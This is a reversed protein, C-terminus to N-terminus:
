RQSNVSMGLSRVPNSAWMLSGPCRLSPVQVLGSSGCMTTAFRPQVATPADASRNDPVAGTPLAITAAAAVAVLTLTTSEIHQRYNSYKSM